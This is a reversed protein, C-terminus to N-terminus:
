RCLCLGPRKIKNSHIVTSDMPMKKSSYSINCSNWLFQWLAHACRRADADWTGVDIWAQQTKCHRLLKDEVLWSYKTSLVHPLFVNLLPEWIAAQSCFRAQWGKLKARTWTYFSVPFHAVYPTMKWRQEPGEHGVLIYLQSILSKITKM